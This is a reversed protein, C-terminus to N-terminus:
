EEFRAMIAKSMTREFLNETKTFDTGAVCTGSGSFIFGDLVKPGDTAWQLLKAHYLTIDDDSLRTNHVPTANLTVLDKGVTVPHALGKNKIKMNWTLQMFFYHNRGEINMPNELSLYETSDTVPEINVGWAKAKPFESIAARFAQKSVNIENQIVSKFPTPKIKARHEIVRDILGKMERGLVTNTVTSSYISADRYAKLHKLPAYKAFIPQLAKLAEIHVQARDYSNM